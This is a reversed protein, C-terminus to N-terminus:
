STTLVTSIFSENRDNVTPALSVVFPIFMLLYSSLHSIHVSDSKISFRVTLMYSRILNRQIQPFLFLVPKFLFSKKKKREHLVLRSVSLGPSTSCKVSSPFWNGKIKDKLWRWSMSEKEQDLIAASAGPMVDATLGVFLLFCPLRKGWNGKLVTTCM